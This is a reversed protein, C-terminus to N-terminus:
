SGNISTCLSGIAAFDGFSFFHDSGIRPVCSYPGNSLSLLFLAPRESMVLSSTLGQQTEPYQQPFRHVSVLSLLPLSRAASSRSRATCGGGIQQAKKESESM